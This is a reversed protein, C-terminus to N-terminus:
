SCAGTIGGFAFSDSVMVTSPAFALAPANRSVTRIVLFFSAATPALTSTIAVTWHSKRNVSAQTDIRQWMVARMRWTGNVYFVSRDHELAEGHLAGQKKQREYQRWENGRLSAAGSSVIM